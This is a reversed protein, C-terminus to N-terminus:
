CPLPRNGPKRSNTRSTAEISPRRNRRPGAVLFREDDRVIGVRATPVPGLARNSRPRTKPAVECLFRTNSESFLLPTSRCNGAPSPCMPWSCNPALGAPSRWRPRRRALGGESLDHCAAVCGTTSRRPASRRFTAKAAAADVKPAVGGDLDNVLAFHSGGLEDHTEGVLYLLNGARKLDM